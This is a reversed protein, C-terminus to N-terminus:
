SNFNNELDHWPKIQLLKKTSIDLFIVLEPRTQDQYGRAGQKKWSIAYLFDQPGEAAQSRSGHLHPWSTVMICTDMICTVM